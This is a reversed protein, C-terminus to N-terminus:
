SLYGALNKMVTIIDVIAEHAVKVALENKSLFNLEMPVHGHLVM